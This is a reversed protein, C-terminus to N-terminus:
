AGSWRDELEGQRVEASAGIPNTQALFRKALTENVIAVRESQENDSEAIDRGALIILAREMGSERQM